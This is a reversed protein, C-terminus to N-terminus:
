ASCLFRLPARVTEYLYTETAALLQMHRDQAAAKSFGPQAVVVSLQLELLRADNELRYLDDAAGVLMRTRGQKQRGAERRILHGFVLDSSSKWRASRQAQGCVVYLDELRGAAEDEKSGKCHVLWVHLQDAEIRMAVLDAMEGSADDNVVISWDAQALLWRLTRHQVTATGQDDGMSERRLDIGSWDLVELRAPDFPPLDRPPRLLTGPALVVTDDEFLLVPPERKFTDSLTEARRAREVLVEAGAARFQLQGQAFVALYAASWSDTVVAFRIPGETDHATIQLEADLMLHTRNDFTLKAEDSLGLFPEWDWEIGLPVLEPRETIAKPRIFGRMVADNTITTDRLKAGVRLCWETWEKISHAAAYSWIRGKRSAGISTREGEEWGVAFINTKTRTQAEAEPFGEVVDAGVHMSFRRSRDRLSLLGVSTPVLRQIGAMARYVDEDVVRRVGEGCVLKALEEHLSDNNSSNIYLTRQDADFHLVQLHYAVEELGAADAWRVGATHKTVFWAVSDRRSLGIPRTELVEAYAEDILEPQWTRASTRYVVTSMRPSLSSMALEDPLQTFGKDFEDLERQRDVKRESVDSIVRNWEPDESYLRRLALDTVGEPRRVFISATGLQADGTRAFRGIFQLTPGLSKHPDHIAAVKLAPLDFGEGLMNVCVVIRSERERIAHLATRREGAGLGTHLEVPRLEPALERYLAVIEAARATPRVRAMLLHDLGQERDARLRAVAAQALARDPDDFTAISRYDIPAFVGDKQAESLPFDYIVRGGLPAGDERYPTATFQVIPRGDFLDRIQRWTTAPVHHAEDVFLHSFAETLVEKVEPALRTLVQATAVVVNCAEVFAAAADASGFAHQMQGVVPRLADESVVAVDPLVGLREFRGAVQGRLADSPVIVLLRFVQAAVALAVMTDTKGTGTPMVVTVPKTRGTSWEGLVAHLAGAQARRLGKEGEGGARFTFAGAWSDSVAGPDTVRLNGVWSPPPDMDYGLLRPDKVAARPVKIALGDDPARAASAVIPIREGRADVATPGDVVALQGGPHLM